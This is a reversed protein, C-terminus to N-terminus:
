ATTRSTRRSTRSRRYGSAPSTSGRPSSRASATCTGSWRATGPSSGSVEAVTVRRYSTHCKAAHGLGGSRRSIGGRRQDVAVMRGDQGKGSLMRLAAARALTRHRQVQRHAVSEAVVGVANIQRGLAHAGAGHEGLPISPANGLRHQQNGGAARCTNCRSGTKGIHAVVQAGLAHALGHHGVQEDPM